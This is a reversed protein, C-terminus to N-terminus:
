LTRCLSQQIPRRTVRYIHHWTMKHAHTHTERMHRVLTESWEGAPDCEAYARCTNSINSVVAPPPEPSCAAKTNSAHAVCRPARPAFITHPGCVVCGGRIHAWVHWHHQVCCNADSSEINNINHNLKRTPKSFSLCIFYM